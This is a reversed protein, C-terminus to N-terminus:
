LENWCSRKLKIVKMQIKISREGSESTDHTLDEVYSKEPCVIRVTFLRSCNMSCPLQGGSFIYHNQMKEETGVGKAAM